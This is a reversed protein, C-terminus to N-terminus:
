VIGQFRPVDSKKIDSPEVVTEGKWTLKQIQNRVRRQKISNHFFKTNSDGELDWKIRSKQRLQILDRQYAHQLQEFIKAKYETNVEANDMM